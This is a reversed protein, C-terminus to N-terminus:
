RPLHEHWSRRGYLGCHPLLGLAHNEHVLPWNQKKMENSPSPSEVKIETPSTGAATGKKLHCCLGPGRTLNWRPTGWGDATRRKGGAGRGKAGEEM